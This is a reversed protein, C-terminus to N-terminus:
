LKTIYNNLDNLLLNIAKNIIFSNSKYSEVQSKLDNMVRKFNFTDVYTYLYRYIKKQLSSIVQSADM